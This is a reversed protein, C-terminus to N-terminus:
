PDTKEFAGTGFVPTKELFDLHGTDKRLFIIHSGMRYDM